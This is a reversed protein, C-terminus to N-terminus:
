LSKTLIKSVILNANEFTYLKAVNSANKQYTHLLFANKCIENLFMCIDIVKNHIFSKGIENKEVFQFIESHQSAICLIASGSSIYNFTKSPISMASSKSSLSVISIDSASLVQYFGDNSQFPLFICNNMKNELVFAELKDKVIGDGVFLFICSDNEKMQYAVEIVSELGSEKGMNGSYLLVFKDQLNYKTVIPNAQKEINLQNIVDGWITLLEIERTTYKSLVDKMSKTLVFISKARKLVKKHLIKWLFVFPSKDKLFTYRQLTEVYVDFVLFNYENRTFLPLFLAIPPNSVILLESNPYDKRVISVIEVFGAIWSTIRKIISLRNYETIKKVKISSDLEFYGCKIKGAIFTVNYSAKVFANAIDVMLYGSSQNIIVIDKKTDM